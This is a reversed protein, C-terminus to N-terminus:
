RPSTVRYVTHCANCHSIATGVHGITASVEGQEASAAATRLAAQMRRALPPWGSPLARRFDAEGAVPAGAAGEALLQAAASMDQRSLAIMAGEIRELHLRMERRLAAAEPEPLPIPRREDPTPGAPADGASRSPTTPDTLEVWILGRLSGLDFGTAQDDPYLERITQELAPQLAPGHCALCAGETEIAKAWRTTGDPRAREVYPAWQSPTGPPPSTQWDTLVDRQWGDLRNAPQRSRVGVRGLRVGHAAAVREAIGPAEVRCVRVGAEVGGDAIAAMLTGRLESSFERAAAAARAEPAPLPALSADPAETASAVGSGVALTLVAALGLCRTSM